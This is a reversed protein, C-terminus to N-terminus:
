VRSFGATSRHSRGQQLLRSHMHMVDDCANLRPCLMLLVM